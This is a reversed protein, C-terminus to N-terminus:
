VLDPRPASNLFRKDTGCISGWDDLRYNLVTSVSSVRSMVDVSIPKLGICGYVRCSMTFSDRSGTPPHSEHRINEETGRWVLALILWLIPWM